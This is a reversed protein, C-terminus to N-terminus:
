IKCPDSFDLILADGGWSVGRTDPTGPGSLAQFKDLSPRVERPAWLHCCTIHCLSVGPCFVIVPALVLVLTLM